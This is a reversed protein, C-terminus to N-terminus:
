GDVSDCFGKAWSPNDFASNSILKIGKPIWPKRLTTCGMFAEDEIEVISDSLYCKKLSCCNKFLGKSIKRIASPLHISSLKACGSFAYEGIESVTDPIYLDSLSFCNAFAYPPVKQIGNALHVRELSKCGCFSWCVDGCLSGEVFRLSETNKFYNTNQVDGEWDSYVYPYICGSVKICELFEYAKGSLIVSPAIVEIKKSAIEGLICKKDYRIECLDVPNGGNCFDISIKLLESESRADDMSDFLAYILKELGDDACPEDKLTKRGVSLYVRKINRGEIAIPYKYDDMKIKISNHIETVPIGNIYNPYGIDASTPWCVFGSGMFSTDYIAYGDSCRKFHLTGYQGELIGEDSLQKQSEIDFYTGTYNYVEM